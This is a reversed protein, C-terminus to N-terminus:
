KHSPPLFFRTKSTHSAYIFRQYQFAACLKPVIEPCVCLVFLKSVMNLSIAAFRPPTSHCKQSIYFDNATGPALRLSPPPGTAGCARNSKCYDVLTDPSNCAIAVSAPKDASLGNGTKPNKKLASCVWPLPGFRRASGRKQKDFNQNNHINM